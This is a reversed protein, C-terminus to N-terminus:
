EGCRSARPRDFTAAQITHWPETSSLWLNRPFPAVRPYYWKWTRYAFGQVGAAGGDWRWGPTMYSMGPRVRCFSNTTMDDAGNYCRDEAHQWVDELLQRVHHCVVAPARQAVIALALAAEYNHAWSVGFVLGDWSCPLTRVLALLYQAYVHGSSDDAPVFKDLSASEGLVNVYPALLAACCFRRFASHLENYRHRAVDQPPPSVRLIWCCLPSIGNHSPMSYLLVRAIGLLSRLIDVDILERNDEAAATEKATLYMRQLARVIQRHSESDELRIVFEATMQMASHLCWAHLTQGTCWRLVELLDGMLLNRTEPALEFADVWLFTMPCSTRSRWWIRVLKLMTCDLPPSTRSLLRLSEELVRGAAIHHHPPVNPAAAIMVGLGCHLLDYALYNAQALPPFPFAYFSVDPSGCDRAGQTEGVDREIVLLLDAVDRLRDLPSARRVTALVMARLYGALDTDPPTRPNDGKHCLKKVYVEVVDFPWLAPSTFTMERWRRCVVALVWPRCGVRGGDELIHLQIERPFHRTFPALPREQEQEQASPASPTSAM